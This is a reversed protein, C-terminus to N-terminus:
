IARFFPNHTTSNPSNGTPQTMPPISPSNQTMPHATSFLQGYTPFKYTPNVPYSQFPLRHKQIVQAYPLPSGPTTQNQTAQEHSPPTEHKKKEAAAKAAMKQNFRIERYKSNFLMPLYGIVVVLITFAAWDSPLRHVKAYNQMVGKFEGALKEAVKSMEASGGKKAQELTNQRIKEADVFHEFVKSAADNLHAPWEKKASPNTKFHAEYDTVLKKVSAQITKIKEDLTKEGYKASLGRDTLENVAKVLAQGNGEHLLAKLTDANHLYYNQFQSYGLVKKTVPDTLKIKSFKETIRSLSGVVPGLAFALLTITTLDRRLIDGIERYDNNVKGRQYARYLRPAVTAIYLLFLLAGKPPEAVSFSLKGLKVMPFSRYDYDTLERMRNGFFSDGWKTPAKFFRNATKYLASSPKASTHSAFVPGTNMM